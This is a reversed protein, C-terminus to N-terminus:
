CRGRHIRARPLTRHPHARPLAPAPAVLALVFFTAHTAVIMVDGFHRVALNLLVQLTAILLAAVPVEIRIVASSSDEPAQAERRGVALLVAALWGFWIALTLLPGAVVAPTM